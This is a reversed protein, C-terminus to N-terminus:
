RGILLMLINVDAPSIGPIRSAQGLTRPRHRELKQRAETSLAKVSMYDYEVPIKVDELRHLKEVNLREREIYGRYKVLIEAAEVIEDRRDDPLKAILEALDPLVAALMNVTLQPRAVVDVLKVGQQLPSSGAETLLADVEAPRVTRQEMFSILGDRLERKQQMLDFRRQDALGIAYGRPTLRM